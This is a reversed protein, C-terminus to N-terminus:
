HHPELPIRSAPHPIRSARYQISSVPYQISSAPSAAGSGLSPPHPAHEADCRAGSVRTAAFRLSAPDCRRDPVPDHGCDGWPHCRAIRRLALWGGKMVGHTQIAELAYASCTPTFRCQSLPGFLFTLAPSLTCRYLRIALILIYQAPNMPAAPFASPLICFASPVADASGDIRAEETQM